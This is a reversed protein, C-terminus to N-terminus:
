RQGDAWTVFPMNVVVGPIAETLRGDSIAAQVDAASKLEVAAGPETWTVLHIRRLPSYGSAGPPNDFVDPQFGLPGMGEPGNTFVYVTALASDPVDALAPVVLVPSNMMDTLLQAIDPDSVETHIFRIEQGDAYALGAPIVPADGMMGPMGMGQMGMGPMPTGAPHMQAMMGQMQGMMGQMNQMMDAAGPMGQMHGMMGQMSGMMAQMQAMTEPSMPTAQMSAMMGQMGGMMGTMEQALGGVDATPALTPVPEAALGNCGALATAILLLGFFSFLRRMIITNETTHHMLKTFPVPRGGSQAILAAVGIRSNYGYCVSGM